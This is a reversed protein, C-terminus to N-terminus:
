AEFIGALSVIAILTWLANLALSPYNSRAINSACLFLSGLATAVYYLFGRDIWSLNAAAFAAVVLGMGLWGLAAPAHSRLGPRAAASM